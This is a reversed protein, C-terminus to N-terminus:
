DPKLGLLENRQLSLVQSAAEVLRPNADAKALLMASTCLTTLSQEGGDDEDGGLSVTDIRYIPTGNPLAYALKPDTIPLLALEANAQVARLLTHELNRPDTVWGAVHLMGMSVQNLALTGGTDVAKAQALGPELSTLFRWTGSMGGGAPGVAIKAVPNAPEALAAFSAVPGGVRHALYVCEDSLRGIVTLGEYRAPDSRLRAAYLDAQVFALHAKGTALMDLNEGSGRTTRNRLRFAPLLKILAPAYLDHYTRGREGSAVIDFRDPQATGAAAAAILGAFAGISCLGRRMRKWSWM